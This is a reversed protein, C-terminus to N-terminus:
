RTVPVKVVKENFQPDPPPNTDPRAVATGHMRSQDPEPVLAVALLLSMALGTVTAVFAIALSCFAVNRTKLVHGRNRGAPIFGGSAAADM